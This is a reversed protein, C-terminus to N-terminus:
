LGECPSRRTGVRTLWERPVPDPGVVKCARRRLTDPHLRWMSRTRGAVLLAAGDSTFAVPDARGESELVMEGIQEGTDTDWFVVTQLNDQHDGASGTGTLVSGDPSFSLMGNERPPADLRREAGMEDGVRRLLLADRFGVAIQEGKHDLAFGGQLFEYSSLIGLDLRRPTKEVSWVLVRQDQFVAGIRQGNGSFALGTVGGHDASGPLMSTVGNARTEKLVIGPNEGTLAVFRGDSSPLSGQAPAAFRGRWAAPLTQRLGRTGQVDWTMVRGDEGGSALTRGDPAFALAHVEETHARLVARVKGRRGTDTLPEDADVVRADLDVLHIAGWSDAVALLHETHDFAIAPMDAALPVPGTVTPQEPTPIFRRTRSGSDYLAVSDKMALALRRGSPSFRAARVELSDRMIEIPAERSRGSWAVLSNGGGPTSVYARVLGDPGALSVSRVSGPYAARAPAASPNTLDWVLLAGSGTGAALRRGDDSLGLAAVGGDDPHLPLPMQAGNASVLISDTAGAVLVRGDSTSAFRNFNATSGTIQFLPVAAGDAPLKVVEGADTVLLLADNAAFGLAVPRGAYGRRFSQLRPHNELISLLTARGQPTDRIGISEVGMLLALEPQASARVRADDAMEAARNAQDIRFIGVVAGLLLLSLGGLAIRRLATRRRRVRDLAQSAEVYTRAIRPAKFRKSAAGQLWRRTDNLEKGDLLRSEEQGSAEWDLARSLLWTLRARHEPSLDMTALVQGLAAAFESRVFDIYQTEKLADPLEADPLERCRVPIVLKELERAKKLEKACYESVLSDPSVVFVVSDASAVGSDLAKQWNSAPHIDTSDLWVKRGARRLADALTRVFHTDVRSYSLFADFHQRPDVRDLVARM